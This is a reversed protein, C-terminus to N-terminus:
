RLCTLQPPAASQPQSLGEAKMTMVLRQYLYDVTLLKPGGPVGNRLLHLFRGTFATYDEGPQILAVQDPGASALVYTGDVEIQGVM